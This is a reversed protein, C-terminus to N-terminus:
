RETLLLPAWCDLSSGTQQVEVAPVAQGVPRRVHSRGQDEYTRTQTYTNYTTHSPQILGETNHPKDPIKQTHTCLLMHASPPIIFAATQTDPHSQRTYVTRRQNSHM